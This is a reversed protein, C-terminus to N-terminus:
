PENDSPIQDLEPETLLARLDSIARQAFVWVTGLRGRRAQADFFISVVYDRGVNAFYLDFSNGSQYQITFPEPSDMQEALQFSTRMSDAVSSALTPLNLTQSGGGDVLIQGTLDSLMVYRAGTDSRLTELRRRVELPLSVTGSQAVEEVESLETGYLISHVTAM